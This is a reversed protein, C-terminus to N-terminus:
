IGQNTLPNKPFNIYIQNLIESIRSEWHSSYNRSFNIDFNPIEEQCIGSESIYKSIFSIFDLDLLLFISLILISKWPFPIIMLPFRSEWSTSSIASSKNFLPYLISYKPSSISEGSYKSSIYDIILIRLPFRKGREM